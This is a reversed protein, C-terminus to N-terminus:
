KKGGNEYSIDFVANTPPLPDNEIFEPLRDDSESIGAKRNFAIEEKLTNKL